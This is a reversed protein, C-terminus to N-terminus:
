KALPVVSPGGGSQSGKELIGVMSVVLAHTVKAQKLLESTQADSLARAASEDKYAKEWKDCEKVKEQYARDPWLKGMLIFLIAIGLLGSATLTSIPIGFIETM